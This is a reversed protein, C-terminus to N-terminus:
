QCICLFQHAATHFILCFLNPSPVQSSTAQCTEVMGVLNLVRLFVLLFHSILISLVVGMIKDDGKRERAMSGNKEGKKIKSPLFKSLNPLFTGYHVVGNVM